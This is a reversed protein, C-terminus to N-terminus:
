TEIQWGAKIQICEHACTPIPMFLSVLKCEHPIQAPKQNVFHLEHYTFQCLSEM